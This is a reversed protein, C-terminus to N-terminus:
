EAALSVDAPAALRMIEQFLKFYVMRTFHNPNDGHEGPAVFDSIRLLVVNPFEAAAEGTWRNYDSVHRLQKAAGADNTKLENALIFFVRVEPPAHRCITRINYKYDAESIRGLFTFDRRLAEVIDPEANGEGPELQTLDALKRVGPVIPAPVALGTAKHAYLAMAAEAWFSMVWVAKGGPKLVPVNNAFHTENYGLAEFARMAAPPVGEFAHRAFVSHHLGLMAGNEVENFDGHVTDAVLTFYHMVARMDCAGRMYVYDLVHEAGEAPTPTGPLEATIWDIERTDDRPDSLVEGVVRLKPQDLLRYLWTEVGMNMVRCSFCFHVLRRGMLGGSVVYLGCYGYDGYRDHVRLIGAQTAYASLTERLAARAAEPDEPLRLKTFNVQNTRNILEIARDLHPELDHEISVRIRSQRLFDDNDGNGSEERKAQITRVLENVYHLQTVENASFRVNFEKQVSMILRLHAMSDWGEVDDATMDATVVLTEDDFVDRMLDTLKAYIEHSNM